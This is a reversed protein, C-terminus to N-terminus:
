AWEATTLEVLRRVTKWNRTTAAVGLKKEFFTNNVKTRGFGNPVHVYIERGSVAFEDPSFHATALAAVAARAPRESLFTVGLKTPDDERAVFPNGDLVRGLETPTRVLVVVDLGLGDAIAGELARAVEAPRKVSTTSVVNGSQVYTTVDHHGHSEFVDRLVGMAIQNHGSVNIGRLLSVYTPM